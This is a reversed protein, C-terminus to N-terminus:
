DRPIDRGKADVVQRARERLCKVGKRIVDAPISMATKRLRAKFAEMSERKPASKDMRRQVEDWVFYDMPNLDPSYKPFEIPKIGVEKKAEAGLKTKCGQPDNDELIKYSCKAGHAKRLAKAIPGRYCEAAVSANWKNPLYHWVRIKDKIIGALLKVSAGPNMKHKHKSPITFGKELGEARTRLHFRVRTAKAHQKARAYTPFPWQKNDMILDLEDSFYDVPYHSWRRCIRERDKEDEITRLPKERPKRAAIDYGAEKMNKAATTSDVKPVGAKEIVDQWRVEHANEAKAILKKRTSNLTRLNAASLKRKAGRTEQRGRRHTKGNLARRVSTLDPPPQGQKKRTLALADRIQTPTMAQKGKKAKLMFMRDLEKETFHKGM